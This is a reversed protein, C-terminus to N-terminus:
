VYMLERKNKGHALAKKWQIRVDKRTGGGWAGKTEKDVVTVFDPFLEALHHCADAHVSLTRYTSCGGDTNSGGQNQCWSNLVINSHGSTLVQLLMCFDEPGPSRLMDWRGGLEKIWPANIAHLRMQRTALLHTDTNRNAGERAVIGAMPHDLLALYLAHFMTDFDNDEMRRFKTPEDQRRASFVIDDDMEVAYGDHVNQLLHQRTQHLNTVNKPLYYVNHSNVAVTPIPAGRQVVFTVKEKWKDPLNNYTIQKDPRHHTLIYLPLNDM